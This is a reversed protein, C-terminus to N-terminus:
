KESAQSSPHDDRWKQTLTKKLARAKSLFLLINLGDETEWTIHDWRLSSHETEGRLACNRQAQTDLVHSHMTKYALVKEIFCQTRMKEDGKNGLAIACCGVGFKIGSPM